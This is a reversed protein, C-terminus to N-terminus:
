DARLPQHKPNYRLGGGSLLHGHRPLFEVLAQTLVTRNVAAEQLASPATTTGMHPSTREEQELRQVRARFGAREHNSLPRSQSRVEAPTPGRHGWPPATENAERSAAEAEDCSWLDPRGRRAAQHHTRTKMSGIGVECAGNYEPYDPPTRLYLVQWAVLAAQLQDAIFASVNDSKLVLPAGHARFLAVLGAPL